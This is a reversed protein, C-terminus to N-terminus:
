GVDALALRGGWRAQVARRLIPSERLGPERGVQELAARRAEEVLAADRVLDAIRLDPLRGHQRTGLFEGPGRIQLDADAIAFGDQTELLAELRAESESTSGRAVLLCRGPRDGRGVRGRLQHLQALGFREAHEIVILTANAVDVGVEIVTTSVLLDIEGREFRNMREQRTAGDLRGHVLEVCLEPFAKAIRTASEEVARLDIKESSEVLPYVVYVQEGRGTTERIARMVREGEGERLLETAVAERGAPLEDIVSVDLEGYSTLALTRPIPTATMVLVHPATGGHTKSALEARQLVGFRHQEDVIALALRRFDVDGQLLAQTGVVLDVDGAALARRIAAAERRPISATLRELRLGSGAAAYRRLTREHQEALLETPAMLAAQFGRDAVARAALFAVATKGSGVDGQLLRNMPFAHGLDGAIEAAAKAQAATLSFPLSAAARELSEAAGPIPIGNERRRSARRLALGLQLLYLEELILREFAPGKRQLLAGSDAEAEPRHIAVLADVVEPLQRQEVWRPSLFGPVLDAYEAVAQEVYGRFARAPVGEPTPYDPIIGGHRRMVEDEDASEATVRELEPHLIEKDYRYRRVTGTVLVQAGKAVFDRLAESAHFWKLRITGSADGVAAQLIRRSRGGRGRGRVLDTALVEGLITAREGVGLSAIRRLARRDDYRVPFTFLLDSVARLGRRELLAARQTGIGSLVTLPRRLAQEAWRPHFFPGFRREVTALGKRMAAADLDRSLWTELRELERRLDRPIRLAALDRVAERLTDTGNRGTAAGVDVHLAARLAELALAFSTAGPDM